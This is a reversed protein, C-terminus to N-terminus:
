CHQRTQRFSIAMQYQNAVHILQWRVTLWWAFVRGDLFQEVVLLRRNTEAVAGKLKWCLVMLAATGSRRYNIQGLTIPSNPSQEVEGARM